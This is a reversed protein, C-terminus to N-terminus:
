CTHTHLDALFYLFISKISVPPISAQGDAAAAANNQSAGVDGGSGGGGVKKKALM